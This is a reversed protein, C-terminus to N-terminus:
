ALCWQFPMHEIRALSLHALVETQRRSSLSEREVSSRHSQTCPRTSSCGSQSEPPLAMQAPLGCVPSSRQARCRGIRSRPRKLALPMQRWDVVAGTGLAQEVDSPTGAVRQDVGKVEKLERVSGGRGHRKLKM